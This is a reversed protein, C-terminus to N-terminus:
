AVKGTRRVRGSKDAALSILLACAEDIAAAREEEEHRSAEDNKNEKKDMQEMLAKAAAIRVSGSENEDLLTMLVERVQKRIRAASRPLSPKPKDGGDHRVCAKAAALASSASDSKTKTKTKIKSKSKAKEKKIM